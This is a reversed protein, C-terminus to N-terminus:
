QNNLLKRYVFTTALLSLPVTIFLGVILCILGLLNILVLLIGFFFLNWTNGKTIAWSKKIAELPGLDKDVILYSTYQLRTAFIVGPIILLIFGVIVIIEQLLTGVFYKVIPKYYFLTKFSPKRGDIFELGIKLIGMGIVLNIIFSVVYFLLYVLLERQPSVAKSLSSSFLSIFLYIVYLGIFYLINKKVLNFGFRLAEKKSFHSKNV